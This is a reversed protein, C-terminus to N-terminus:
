VAPPGRIVVLRARSGLAPPVRGQGALGQCRCAPPEGRGCGLFSHAKSESEEEREEEEVSEVGSESATDFDAPAVTVSPM